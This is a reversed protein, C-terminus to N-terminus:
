WSREDRIYPGINQAEQRISDRLAARDNLYSKYKEPLLSRDNCAEIAIRIYFQAIAPTAPRINELACNVDDSRIETRKARQAVKKAKAVYAALDAASCDVSNKALLQSAELSITMRQSAAQVRIIDQRAEEDPLLVPIIADMRGFRLLASDIKDPRNSAFFVIVRGRQTEDSMFQLMQNFLNRAVPNEDGGRSSMDSQDLEDFFVLVPALSKAFAFFRKLKAESEGVYKSLINESRLMVANFGIEQALARIFFTKGTGPPGALLVGKPVDPSGERLPVIVEDQAWSTLYDMGGLAAFGAQLPEIMEAIDSYEAQIIAQKRQSVLARTVGCPTNRYALLLIDELHPLSLGPTLNAFEEVSLDILPIAKNSEKRTELYRKLYEYRVDRDPLPLDIVKIGSGSGRLDGHLEDLRAAVLFLPNNSGQLGRDRGWSFLLGLIERDAASMVGKQDIQPCILEAQEIVVAVRGRSEKALMLQEILRLADVVGMPASFPDASPAQQPSGGMVSSLAAAMADQPPAARGELWKGAKPRMTKPGSIGEDAFRFGRARNYFVVVERKQGLLFGLHELQSIGAPSYGYVDDTLLFAHAAGAGWTEKYVAFWAPEQQLLGEIEIAM